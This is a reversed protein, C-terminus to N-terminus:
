LPDSIGLILYKAALLSGHRPTLLQTRAAQGLADGAQEVPRVPAAGAVLPHIGVPVLVRDLTACWGAAVVVEAVEAGWLLCSLRVQLVMLVAVIM